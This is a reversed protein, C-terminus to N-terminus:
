VLHSRVLANRKENAHQLQSNRHEGLLFCVPFGACSQTEGFRRRFIAFLEFPRLSPMLDTLSKAEVSKLRKKHSGPTSFTECATHPMAEERLLCLRNRLQQQPAPDWSIACSPFHQGGQSSLTVEREGAGQCKRPAERLPRAPRFAPQTRLAGGGNHRNITCHFSWLLSSSKSHFRNHISARAFAEEKRSATDSLRM